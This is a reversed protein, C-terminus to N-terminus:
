GCEGFLEPVSPLRLKLKKSFSGEVYEEGNILLHYIISLIKRALTVIAVKFGM